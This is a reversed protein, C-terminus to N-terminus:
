VATDLVRSPLVTVVNEGDLILRHRHSLRVVRCGISAALVIAREHRRIEAKAQDLTACPNVREIWREAAHRTVHASM